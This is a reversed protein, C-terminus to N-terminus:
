VSVGGICPMYGDVFGYDVPLVRSFARVRVVYPKVFGIYAGSCARRRFVDLFLRMRDEFVYVSLDRKCDRWVFEIPNLHSSYPPLYVLVIDLEDAIRRAERAIHIRANDAVLVIVADQNASRVARLLSIFDGTKCANSIVAVSEGEVVYAGLVYFKRRRTNLCLKQRVYTYSELQRQHLLTGFDCPWYRKLLEYLESLLLFVWFNPKAEM